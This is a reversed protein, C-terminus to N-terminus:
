KSNVRTFIQLHSIALHHNHLSLHGTHDDHFTEFLKIISHYSPPGCHAVPGYHVMGHWAMGSHVMGAIGYLVKCFWVLILHWAVACYSIALFCFNPYRAITPDLFAWPLGDWLKRDKAM